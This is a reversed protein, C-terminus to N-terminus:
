IRYNHGIKNLCLADIECCCRWYNTPSCNQSREEFLTSQQCVSWRIPWNSTYASRHRIHGYLFVSKMFASRCSSPLRYARCSFADFGHANSLDLTICFISMDLISSAGTCPSGTFVALAVCPCLPHDRRHVNLGYWLVEELSFWPVAFSPIGHLRVFVFPRILHM